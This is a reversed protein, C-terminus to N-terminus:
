LTEVRALTPSASGQSSGTSASRTESGGTEPGQLRNGLPDGKNRQEGSEREGQERLSVPANQKGWRQRNGTEAGRLVEGHELADHGGVGMCKVRRM